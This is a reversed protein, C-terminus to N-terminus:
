PPRPNQPMHVAEAPPTPSSDQASASPLIRASAAPSFGTGGSMEPAAQKPLAPVPEAASTEPLHGLLPPRSAFHPMGDLLTNSRASPISM